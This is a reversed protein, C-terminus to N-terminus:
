QSHFKKIEIEKKLKVNLQLLTSMINYLKEINLM